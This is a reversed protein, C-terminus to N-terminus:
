TTQQQKKKAKKNHLKFDLVTHTKNQKNTKTKQKLSVSKGLFM